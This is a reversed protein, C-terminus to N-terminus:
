YIRRLLPVQCQALPISPVHWNQGPPTSNQHHGFSSCGLSNIVAIYWWLWCKVSPAARFLLPSEWCKWPAFSSYNCSMSHVWQELGGQKLMVLVPSLSSLRQGFYQTFAYLASGHSDLGVASNGVEIGTTECLTGDQKVITCVYGEFRHPSGTLKKIMVHEIFVRPNSSADMKSSQVKSMRWFPMRGTASAEWDTSFVHSKTFIVLLCMCFDIPRLLIVKM